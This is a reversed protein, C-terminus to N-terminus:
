AQNLVIERLIHAVGDEVHSLTVMDAQRKVEDQANGMAVGLGAERIMALDNLSDGIAIVEEMAIGHLGCVQRLGSAKNVGRPNFELNAPHSNTIEFIGMEEGKRRLRALLREDECHFGFKLWSVKYPDECWQNKNYVKDAATGWYWIDHKLAWSRLEVILAADMEIRSHLENRNRWVESGNATVFPLHNGIMGIYPAATAIGRGTAVCVVLGRELCERIALLNAESIESRENLLTGDMDLAIMKYSTMPEDGKRADRNNM